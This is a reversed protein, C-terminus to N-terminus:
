SRSGDTGARRGLPYGPEEIWPGQTRAAHLATLALMLDQRYGSTVIIQDPHCHAHRSVALYSAIQVRLEPEGRPDAYTTFAIADNRVARTRMRAWLKAPFADDAPVGMQFPLPASSYPRTFGALPGDLPPEERRSARGAVWRMSPHRCLWRRAGPEEAILRDYVM